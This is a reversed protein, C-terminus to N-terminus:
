KYIPVKEKSLGRYVEVYGEPEIEPGAAQNVEAQPVLNLYQFLSDWNAPQIPQIQSDAPSRLVLRLRGQEQVFAILSAEQPTLAITILPSAERKQEQQYRGSADKMIPAGIDQGVALILVNQFLPIVVQSVQQGQPTQVPINVQTIIDVYDGPKIMGALSSINDVSITIARKGPPTVGALGEGASQKPYTLKSLTVQEGKSIPAITLMGSVRDLSTVAQPQVFQNPIIKVELQTSAIAAGRLIDEKAILVATQNTQLENKITEVKKQADEDVKRKQQTLYVNLMV